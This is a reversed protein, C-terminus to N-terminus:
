CDVQPCLEQQFNNTRLNNSKLCLFSIDLKAQQIINLSDITTTILSFVFFLTFPVLSWTVISSVAGTLTFTM